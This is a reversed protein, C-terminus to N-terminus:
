CYAVHNMLIKRFLSIWKNPDTTGSLGNSMGLLVVTTSFINTIEFLLKSKLESVLKSESEYWFKGTCNAVATCSSGCHAHLVSNVWLLLTVSVLSM